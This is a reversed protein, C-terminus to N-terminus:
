GCAQDRHRAIRTIDDATRQGGGTQFNPRQGFGGEGRGERGPSSLFGAAVAGGAVVLAATIAATIGVVWWGRRSKKAPATKNDTTQTEM